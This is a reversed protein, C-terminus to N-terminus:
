SQGAKMMKPQLWFATRTLLALVLFVLVATGVGFGAFFVLGCAIGHTALVADEDKVKAYVAVNLLYLGLFVTLQVAILWPHTFRYAFWVLTLLMIGISTTRSGKTKLPNGEYDGRAGQWLLRLQYLFGSVVFFGCLLFLVSHLLEFDIDDYGIM